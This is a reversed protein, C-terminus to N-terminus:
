KRRSYICGEGGAVRRIPELVDKAYEDFCEEHVSEGDVELYEQGKYIEGYCCACRGVVVEKDNPTHLKWDDYDKIEEGMVICTKSIAIRLLEKIDM